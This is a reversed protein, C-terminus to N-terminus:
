QQPIVTLYDQAAWGSRTSDYSATLHWWTYGDAERPGNTVLFAEADYGAFLVKSALGPEARINLGEMGTNSIQVYVGVVITGPAPTSTPMPTPPLPTLTPPLPRPTSTPASIITMAATTEAQETRAAAPRELLIYVLTSCVLVAAIILAAVFVKPTFVRRM